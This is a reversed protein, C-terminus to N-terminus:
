TLRQSGGRKCSAWSSTRSRVTARGRFPNYFDRDRTMRSSSIVAGFMWLGHPMNNLAADFRAATQANERSSLVAGLLLHKLRKAISYSGGIAPIVAAALLVYDGGLWLMGICIPVFGALLQMLVIPGAAFNRGPTGAMYMIVTISWALRCFPDEVLAFTLLMGIGMCAVHMTAGIGYSVEWAHMQARTKIGERAWKYRFMSFIRAGVVFPIIATLATLPLSQAKFCVYAFVICSGISGVLLSRTDAHIADVQSFYLDDPVVGDGERDAKPLLTPSQGNMPHGVHSGAAVQFPSRFM